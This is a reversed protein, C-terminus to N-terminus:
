VIIVRISQKLIECEADTFEPSKYYAFAFYGDQAPIKETGSVVYDERPYLSKYNTDSILLPTIYKSISTDWMLKYRLGARVFLYATCLVNNASINNVNAGVSASVFGRKPIFSGWYGGGSYKPIVNEANCDYVNYGKTNMMGRRRSM